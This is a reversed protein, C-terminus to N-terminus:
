CRELPANAVLVHACCVAHRSDDSGAAQIPLQEQSYDMAQGFAGPLQHAMRSIQIGIESIRSCTQELRSTYFQFGQEGLLDPLSNGSPSDSKHRIFLYSKAM